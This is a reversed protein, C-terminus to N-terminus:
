AAHDTHSAPSPLPLLKASDAGPEGTHDHQWATILIALAIIAQERQHGSMPETAIHEVTVHKSASHPMPQQAERQRRNAAILWIRNRLAKNVGGSAGIQFVREDKV